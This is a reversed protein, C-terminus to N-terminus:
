KSVVRGVVPYKFTFNGEWEELSKLESATLEDFPKDLNEADFSMKALAVSCDHGAFLNYGGNKPSSSPTM